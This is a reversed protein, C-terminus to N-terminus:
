HGAYEDENSCIRLGLLIQRTGYFAGYIVVLCDELTERLRMTLLQLCDPFVRTAEEVRPSCYWARPIYGGPLSHLPPIVDQACLAVSVVVRSLNECRVIISLKCLPHPTRLAFTRSPLIHVEQRLWDFDVSANGLDCLVQIGPISVESLDTRVLDVRDKVFEARDVLEDV